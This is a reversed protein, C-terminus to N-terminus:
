GDSVRKQRILEYIPKSMLDTVWRVLPYKNIADRQGPNQAALLKQQKWYDFAERLDVEFDPALQIGTKAKTM